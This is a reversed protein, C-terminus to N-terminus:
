YNSSYAEKGDIWKCANRDWQSRHHIFPEPAPPPNFDNGPPYHFTGIPGEEM